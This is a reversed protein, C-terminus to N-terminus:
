PSVIELQFTHVAEYNRAMAVSITGTSIGYIVSWQTANIRQSVNNLLEMADTPSLSGNTTALREEITDYRWGSSGGTKIGTSLLHNTAMHWANENPIVAMEGDVYEILVSHGRHDAILYHIPPGGTFDINYQSFIAVAEDSTRAHDLVERIIALSYITQRSPDYSAISENVAAMAIALGYENMGDSPIYPTELLPAQETITMELLDSLANLDIESFALNVMSVSAYGDPPDTFLLLAPSYAWDFNRGYLLNDEDGLAAFLSCAFPTNDPLNATVPSDYGGVYYMVYLPYDDVKELSNLTDFAAQSFGYTNETPTQSPPAISPRCGLMVMLILLVFGTKWFDVRRLGSM